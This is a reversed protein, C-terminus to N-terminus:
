IWVVQQSFTSVRQVKLISNEEKERHLSLQFFLTHTSPQRLGADKSSALFSISSMIFSDLTQIPLLLIFSSLAVISHFVPTYPLSVLILSFIFRTLNFALTFFYPFFLVPILLMSTPYVQYLLSFVATRIIFVPTFLSSFYRYFFLHLSALSSM